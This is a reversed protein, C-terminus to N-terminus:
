RRSRNSAYAGASRRSPDASGTLDLILARELQQAPIRGFPPQYLEGDVNELLLQDPQEHHRSVWARQIQRLQWRGSDSHAPPEMYQLESIQEGRQEILDLIDQEWSLLLDTALRDSGVATLLTVLFWPMRVSLEVARWNRCGDVHQFPPLPHEFPPLTMFM